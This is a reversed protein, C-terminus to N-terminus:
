RAAQQLRQRAASLTGHFPHTKNDALNLPPGLAAIVASELLWPKTVAHWTMNGRMHNGVVRSRLTSASAPGNPAIGVYILDLDADSPHKNGPVDALANRLMWWAYLGGAKPLRPKAVDLAVANATLAALAEQLDATVKVTVV